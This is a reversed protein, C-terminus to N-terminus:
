TEPPLSSPALGGGARSAFARGMTARRRRSRPWVPTLREVPPMWWEGDVICKAPWHLRMALSFGGDPPPLWNVEMAPNPADRQILIQLSGDHAVVPGRDSSICGLAGRSSPEHRDSFSLEWLARAMPLQGAPFNIVYRESGNLPEGHSDHTCFFQVLDVAEPAGFANWAAVARELGRSRHKCHSAGARAWENNPRHTGALAARRIMDMGAALGGELAEGFARGGKAGAASLSQLLCSLKAHDTNRPFKDMLTRLRFFYDDASLATVMDLVNLETEALAAAHPAIPEMGHETFRSLAPPEPEDFEGTSGRVPHRSIRIMVWVLNSRARVAFGEHPLEGRWSMGVVAFRQRSGPRSQSSASAILSGWADAAVLSYKRGALDGLTVVVPGDSIDLLTSFRATRSENDRLGPALDACRPPLRVVQNPTVPHARRIADAMLVPFGLVSAAAALRYEHALSTSNSQLAM